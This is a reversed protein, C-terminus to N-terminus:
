QKAASKMRKNCESWYQPWKLSANTKRLEVKQAKWEVGCAKQRELMAARGGSAPKAAATPAPTPAPKAATTAVPPAAATAPTPTVATPTAPAAAPAAAVRRTRCASLFDPWKQGNLTNGAKAAQYEAGCEKMVNAQAFASPAVSVLAVVFAAAAIGMSPRIFSM